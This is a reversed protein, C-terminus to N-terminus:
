SWFNIMLVLNFRVTGHFYINYDLSTKDYFYKVKFHKSNYRLTENEKKLIMNKDLTKFMFM